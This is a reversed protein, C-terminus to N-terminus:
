GIRICGGAVGRSRRSGELEPATKSQSSLSFSAGFPRADTAAAGCLRKMVGQCVLGEEVLYGVESEQGRGM